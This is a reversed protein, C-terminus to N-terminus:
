CISFCQQAWLQMTINTLRTEYSADLAEFAAGWVGRENEISGVGEITRGWRWAAADHTRGGM